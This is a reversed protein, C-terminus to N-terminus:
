FVSLNRESKEVKKLDGQTRSGDGECVTEQDTLQVSRGTSLPCFHSFDLRKRDRICPFVTKNRFSFFLLKNVKRLLAYSLFQIKFFYIGM